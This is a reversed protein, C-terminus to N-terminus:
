IKQRLQGSFEVRIMARHRAPSEPGRPPAVPQRRTGASIAAERWHVFSTGVSNGPMSGCAPMVIPRQGTVSCSGGHASGSAVPACGQEDISIAGTHNVAHEFGRGGFVGCLGFVWGAINSLIRLFDLLLPGSTMGHKVVVVEVGARVLVQSGVTRIVGCSMAAFVCDTMGRHSDNQLLPEAFYHSDELM